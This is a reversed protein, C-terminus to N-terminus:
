AVFRLRRRRLALLAGGLLLLAAAATLYAPLGPGTNPLGGGQGGSATTAYGVASLSTGTSTVTIVFVAYRTDPSLEEATCRTATPTVCAGQSQGESPMVLALSGFQEGVGLETPPRWTVDLSRSRPEITQLTAPGPGLASRRPVLRDQRGRDGLQGAANVGWCYVAGFVDMVCTHTQAVTVAVAVGMTQGFLRLGVLDGAASATPVARDTTDGTGLQGAGNEGWCYVALVSTSCSSDAGLDLVEFRRGDGGVEVPVDTSSGGGTGLQGSGNDGWCYAVGGIDLACAHRRGLDIQVLRPGGVATTDVQVPTGAPAPVPGDGLQGASDDGWCWAGGDDGVACTNDSGAAVDVVGTPGVVAQPALVSAGPAAGLQGDANSGWCSVTGTGLLACTHTTGTTVKAVPGLGPVQVPVASDVTSNIGLQGDGNEGWCYLDGDLDVACTHAGGADVQIMQLDALAAATVPVTSDAPPNAVGLQGSSNDGWCWLQGFLTVACSHADGTSITTSGVAPEATASIGAPRGTAKAVAAAVAAVPPPLPPAAAAPVAASLLVTLVTLAAAATRGARGPRAAVPMPHLHRM